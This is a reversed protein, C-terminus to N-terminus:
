LPAKAPRGITVVTDGAVVPPGALGYLLYGDIPSVVTELLAGTYGRIVGVLDGAKVDRGTTAVPTFIGTATASVGTTDDFWRTDARPPTAAGPSIGFERLLNEVGAVIPM